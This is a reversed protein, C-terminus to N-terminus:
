SEELMLSVSVEQYSANKVTCRSAAAPPVHASTAAPSLLHIIRDKDELSKALIELNAAQTQELKTLLQVRAKAHESENSASTVNATELDEHLTMNAQALEEVEAQLRQVLREQEVHDKAPIKLLEASDGAVDFDAM